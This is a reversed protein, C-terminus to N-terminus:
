VISGLLSGRKEEEIHVRRGDSVSLEIRSRASEGRFEKSVKIRPSKL